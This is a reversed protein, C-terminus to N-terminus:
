NYSFLLFESYLHAAYPHPRATVFFPFYVVVTQTVTGLVGELSM